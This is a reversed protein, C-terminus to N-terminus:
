RSSAALRAATREIPLTWRDSPQQQLATRTAVELGTAQQQIQPMIAGLAQGVQADVGARTLIEATIRERLVNRTTGILHDTLVEAPPVLKSGEQEAMKSDLWAVFQPSTMANLEIRNTQLWIEWRQPVYDAVPRHKADKMPEVKEVALGMDLAEEPELGLNVIPVRRAGRARTAEILSQHILTGSADADHICFFKLDEATDGLLDIVDRAARSAFGKSTLLACDHREPWQADKLIQFFGEKECYLIKNFTWRPREYSEVALTGLSIDQRYHPHYLTGRADRYIGPIDEGNEEEIATIIKSFNEYTPEKGLEEIIFPRVQYFLQRLSFRSQGNGSARAIATDLVERVIETEPRQRVAPNLRRHHAKASNAAKEITEFLHGAMLHFDPAKGQSTIPMYPTQVNVVLRVPKRGVNFAHILNCGQIVLDTKERGRWCKVVSTVPSRNVNLEVDDQDSIAAWVEVLFPIRALPSRPASPTFISASRAYGRPLNLTDNGVYILRDPKVAKAVVRAAELLATTEERSLSEAARGKGFPAALRGATAGTCGDLRAVLDRVYGAGYAQCLEFFADADYWQPSSLGKYRPASAMTLARYAWRMSGHNFESGNGLCVEVRTGSTEAARSEVDTGGDERPKLDLAMGNTWVRITGGTATVLGAVVRLGNGLAGRTPLRLQKSSRLPRNISFLTAIEAPAGPIGPGDDKVCLAGTPMIRADCTAGADLANDVLEKAVLRPLLDVSVGAVAPLTGLSRFLTWDERTFDSM